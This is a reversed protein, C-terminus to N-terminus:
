PVAEVSIPRRRAMRLLATNGTAIACEVTLQDILRQLDGATVKSFEVRGLQPTEIAAPADGSLIAALKAKADALQQCPTPLASSTKRICPM